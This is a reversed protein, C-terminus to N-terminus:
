KESFRRTRQPTAAGEMLFRNVEPDAFLRALWDVDETVLPRLLLRPTELPIRYTRRLSEVDV